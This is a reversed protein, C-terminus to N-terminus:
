RKQGGLQGSKESKMELGRRSEGRKEREAKRIGEITKGDKKEDKNGM